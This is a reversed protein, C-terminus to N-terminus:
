RLGWPPGRHFINTGAGLYTGFEDRWNYLRLTSGRMEFNTIFQRYDVHMHLDQGSIHWTGTLDTYEWVEGNEYTFSGLGLVGDVMFDYFRARSGGDWEERTQIFRNDYYLGEVFWRGSVLHWAEIEEQYVPPPEPTPTPTPTPAVTDYWADGPDMPAPEAWAQHSYRYEFLGFGGSRPGDNVNTHPPPSQNMMAGGFWGIGLGTSFLVVCLLVIAWIPMSKNPPTPQHYPPYAQPPQHPQYSPAPAMPRINNGCGRCLAASSDVLSGCYPCKVM